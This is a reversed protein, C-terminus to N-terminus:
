DRTAPGDTAAAALAIPALALSILVFAFCFMRPPAANSACYARSVTPESGDSEEFHYPATAFYLPEVSAGMASPKASLTKAAIAAPTDRVVASPCVITRAGVATVGSRAVAVARCSRSPRSDAASQGCPKSQRKM